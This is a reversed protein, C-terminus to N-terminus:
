KGKKGELRDGVKAVIRAAADAVADDWTWPTAAAVQQGRTQEGAGAKRAESKLFWALGAVILGVVGLGQWGHKAFFGGVAEKARERIRERLGGSLAKVEGKAEDASEIAETVKGAITTTADIARSSDAGAKAASIGLRKMEAQLEPWEEALQRAKGTLEIGASHLEGQNHEAVVWVDGRYSPETVTLGKIM